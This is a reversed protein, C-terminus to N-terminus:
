EWEAILKHYETGAKAGKLSETVLHFAARPIWRGVFIAQLRTAAAFVGTSSTEREALDSPTSVTGCWLAGVTLEDYMKKCDKKQDKGRQRHGKGTMKEEFEGEVERLKGL